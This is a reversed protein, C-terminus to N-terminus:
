FSIGIGAQWNPMSFAVSSAGGMFVIKGTRFIIGAEVAVGKASADTDKAYNVGLPADGDYSYENIEYLTEEKGYGVGGYMFFNRGVQWTIGGLAMFASVKHEGTFEYWSFQDYDTITGDEYTYSGTLGPNTNSLGAIYWGVGGLMGVRLGIPTAMNGAYAVFLNKKMKESVVEGRVDFVANVNELPMEKMAEWTMIHQGNFIKEGVDGKVEVMPGQYTIGGDLSVFLSVKLTQNLKLGKVVYQVEISNGKVFSKINSISQAYITSGLSVFAAIILLKQLNKM